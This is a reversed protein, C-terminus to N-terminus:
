IIEMLLVPEKERLGPLNKHEKHMRPTAKTVRIFDPVSESILSKNSLGHIAM